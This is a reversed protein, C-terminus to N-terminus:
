AYVKNRQRRWTILGCYVHANAQISLANGNYKKEKEKEEM